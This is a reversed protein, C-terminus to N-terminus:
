LAFIALGLLIMLLNITIKMKATENKKWQEVKDFITRDSAILLIIILPLVFLLNYYILYLLGKMFATQDHLLTLVLLYPGGTCPFEYLGVLLGLVLATPVSAREMLKAMKGHGSQPIKLKIPFAPFLVGLLGVLGFAIVVGAGIRAMFHPIGFVDLVQLVGLGILIYTLFLGVIYTGGIFLINRRERGLSFLFAITLLMVSFACPNFSDILASITIVPLLFKGGQSYASVDLLHKEFIAFYFTFVVVIVLILILLTPKTKFM